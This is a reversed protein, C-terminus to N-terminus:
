AEYMQWGKETLGYGYGWVPYKIVLGLFRLKKLITYGRPKNCRLEANITNVLPGMCLRKRFDGIILLAMYEDESLM